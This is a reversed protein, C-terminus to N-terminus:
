AGTVAAPAPVEVALYRFTGRPADFRSFDRWHLAYSGDLVVDNSASDGDGRVLRGSLERGEHLRFARDRTSPESAPPQWLGAVDSLLLAIGNRGPAASLELRRVDQVFGLRALDTAAHDKLAYTEGDQEVDLRGTSYKLEM